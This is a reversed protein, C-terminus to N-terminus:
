NGPRHWAFQAPAWGWAWAWHGLIDVHKKLKEKWQVSCFLKSNQRPSAAMLDRYYNKFVLFSRTTYSHILRLLCYFVYNHSYIKYTHIIRLRCYFVYHILIFKLSAYYNQNNLNKFWIGLERLIHDLRRVVAEHLRWPPPSDFQVM